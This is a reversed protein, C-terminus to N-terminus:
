VNRECIVYVNVNCYIVHLGMFIVCVHFLCVFLCFVGGWEQLSVDLVLLLSFENM